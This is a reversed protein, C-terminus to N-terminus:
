DLGAGAGRAARRQQVQVMLATFALLCEVSAAMHPAMSEQAASRADIAAAQPGRVAPVWLRGAAGGDRRARPASVFAAGEEGMNRVMAEAEYCFLRFPLHPITVCGDLTGGLWQWQAAVDDLAPLDPGAQAGIRWTPCMILATAVMNDPFTDWMPQMADGVGVILQHPVDTAGVLATGRNDRVLRPLDPGLAGIFGFPRPGDNCMAAATLSVTLTEEPSRGACTAAEERQHFRFALHIDKRDGIAVHSAHNGLRMSYVINIINWAVAPSRPVPPIYAESWHRKAPRASWYGHLSIDLYDVVTGAPLVAESPCIRRAYDLGALAPAVAPAVAAIDINCHYDIAKTWRGLRSIWAACQRDDAPDAGLTHWPKGPLGGALGRMDLSAAEAMSVEWPVKPASLAGPARAPDDVIIHFYLDADVKDRLATSLGRLALKTARDTLAIVADM